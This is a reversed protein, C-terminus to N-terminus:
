EVEGGLLARFKKQLVLLAAAEALARDKRLLERELNQKEIKLARLSQAEERSGGVEAQSCFEIKWQELQHTFVGCERCWANLDDGTLSYSQQLATLREELGWDKPRKSTPSAFQNGTKKSQRMWDKLTTVNINLENAVMEITQDNNRNYVKVLAQEKFDESYKKYTKM